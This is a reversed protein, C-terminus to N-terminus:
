ATKRERNHWRPFKSQVRISLAQKQGRLPGVNLSNGTNRGRVLFERLRSSNAESQTMRWWTRWTGCERGFRAFDARTRAKTVILPAQLIASQGYLPSHRRTERRGSSVRHAKRGM